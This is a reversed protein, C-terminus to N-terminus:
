EFISHSTNRTQAKSEQYSQIGGMLLMNNQYEVESLEPKGKDWISQSKKMEEGRDNIINRGKLEKEM